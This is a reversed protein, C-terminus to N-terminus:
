EAAAKANEGGGFHPMVEEAIKTYQELMASEPTCMPMSLNIYELGPFQEEFGKILEILDESTGAFWAGMDMYDEVSPVGQAYWDGRQAIIDLQESSVGPLFGLPGFMKAHEEFLPTIEKIAQERTEGLYMHLGINIGEGLKLDKGARQGAEQYARIPGAELTAAGGGIFGKLGYKHMFDLGRPKASVVPQWAEVPLNVPRPVMTIEKLDYGRYPVQAPITYHKGVHSFSQENFAKFIVECQEEFLDRNADQDIIPNGFTEVERSHYGRGVGFITRGKTMIDAQAYDEALRLPHWMPAINFGCGIKIQETIHCLHVAAMLNNPIVEYGEHQFHHEAMWMSHYGLKDMTQTIRELKGFVGRLEKDSFRRENAPTAEKGRDPMDIHGAYVTTFKNIMAYGRNRIGKGLLTQESASRALGRV